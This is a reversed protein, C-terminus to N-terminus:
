QAPEPSEALKYIRRVGAPDIGVSRLSPFEGSFKTVDIKAATQEATATTGADPQFYLAAPVVILKTGAPQIALSM